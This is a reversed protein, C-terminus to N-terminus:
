GHENNAPVAFTFESHRTFTWSSFHSALIHVAPAFDEIFYIFDKSLYPSVAMATNLVTEASHFGDDICIDIKKGALIQQIMIKNDLFQDFTHLEPDHSPFAGRAKLFALNSQTYSLDIDLGIVSAKPFLHSWLALGTGHLIGIEVITLPEERKSLFGTLAAAYHKAYGHHFMRDGGVMGGTSLQEVTRPDSPSVTRRATGHRYGGFHKEVAILYQETGYEYLRQHKIRSYLFHRIPHRLLGFLHRTSTSINRTMSM